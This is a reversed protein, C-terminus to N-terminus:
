EDDHMNLTGIIVQHVDRIVFLTSVSSFFIDQHEAEAGTSGGLPFTSDDFCM